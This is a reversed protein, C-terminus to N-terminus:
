RGGRCGWLWERWLSDPHVARGFEAHDHQTKKCQRECAESEEGESCRDLLHETAGAICLYPQQQEESEDEAPDPETQHESRDNAAPDELALLTRRLVSEIFFVHSIGTSAIARALWDAGSMARQESM